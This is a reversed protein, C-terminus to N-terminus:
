GGKGGLARLDNGVGVVYVETAINEPVFGDCCLGGHANAIIKDCVSLSNSHM